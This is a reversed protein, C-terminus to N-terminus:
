KSENRFSLIFAILGCLMLLAGIIGLIDEGSM